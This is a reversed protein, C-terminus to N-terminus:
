PVSDLGLPALWYHQVHGCHRCVRVACVTVQGSPQAVPAAGDSQLPLGHLYDTTEMQRDGCSLCTNSVRNEALAHDIAAIQKDSLEHM